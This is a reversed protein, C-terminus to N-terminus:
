TLALARSKSLPVTKGELREDGGQHLAVSSNSRVNVFFFPHLPEVDEGGLEGEGAVQARPNQLPEKPAAGGVADDVQTCWRFRPHRTVDAADHARGPVEAQDVERLPALPQRELLDFGM